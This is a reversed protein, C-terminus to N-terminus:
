DSRQEHAKVKLKYLDYPTPKPPTVHPEPQVVSIDANEDGLGPIPPTQTAIRGPYRPFPTTDITQAELKLDDTPLAAIAAWQSAIMLNGLKRVKIEEKMTQRAYEKVIRAEEAQQEPTLKRKFPTGNYDRLQQLVKDMNEQERDQKEQKVQAKDKKKFKSRGTIIRKVEEEERYFGRFVFISSNGFFTRVNIM